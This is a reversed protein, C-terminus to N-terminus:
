EPLHERLSELAAWRPDVSDTPCSCPGQNLDRGCSACLGACDPSCVPADPLELLITERVMPALDVFDGEIPFADPDTLHVQYLENVDAEVTGELAQLCRRCDGRFSAALRGRVVIGDSLSECDLEIRVDAGPVLRSDNLEVVAPQVGLRISKITGPRRLMEFANLRFQNRDGNNTTNM